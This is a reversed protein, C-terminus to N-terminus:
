YSHCVEFSTYEYFCWYWFVVELALTGYGTGIDSTSYFSHISHWSICRLLLTVIYLRITGFICFQIFQCHHYFDLLKITV